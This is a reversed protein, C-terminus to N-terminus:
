KCYGLCPLLWVSLNISLSYTTYTYMLISNPWLFLSIKGNTVDHISRSSVISLSVPSFFVFLM